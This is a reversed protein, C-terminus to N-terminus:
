ELKSCNSQRVWAWAFFQIKLRCIVFMDCNAIHEFVLLGKHLHVIFFDSKFVYEDRRQFPPNVRVNVQIRNRHFPQVAKGRQGVLAHVIHQVENQCVKKRFMQLKRFQVGVGQARRCFFARANNNQFVSLWDGAYFHNGPAVSLHNESRFFFRGFVAAGGRLRLRDCLTVLKGSRGASHPLQPLSPPFFISTATTSCIYQM